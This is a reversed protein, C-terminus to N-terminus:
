GSSVTSHNKNTDNEPLIIHFYYSRTYMGRSVNLFVLESAQRTESFLSAFLKTKNM